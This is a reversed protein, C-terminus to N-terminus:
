IENNLWKILINRMRSSPCYLIIEENNRITSRWIWQVFESLAYIEEHKQTINVGKNIFFQKIIPNMFRNACYALATKHSYQNTARANISVFLDQRGYGRGKLKTRYDKYTTWMKYDVNIKAINKYFNEINKKLQILINKNKNNNFWSMSLSYYNEGVINLKPKDLIHILSKLHSKDFNYRKNGSLKIDFNENSYEIYYYEYKIKFMDFYYRQIQSDFLYTLVYVENFCEFAKIPFLWVLIKNNHYFLSKNDCLNKIYNFQGDYEKDIWEIFGDKNIKIKHTEDKLMKFDSEKINCFDIIDMVEDLILIYDNSKLLQMTEQNAFQFLAHTTAINKGEIILKHLSDLKGQGFNKPEYFKKNNVSKIVRQIEDLYPTIYIYKNDKDEKMQQIAWSSKGSGMISDVIKIKDVKIEGELMINDEINKIM